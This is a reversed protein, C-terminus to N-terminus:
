EQREKQELILEWLQRDGVVGGDNCGRKDGMISWWCAVCPLDRLFEGGEMDIIDDSGAPLSGEQM